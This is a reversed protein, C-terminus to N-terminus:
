AVRQVGHPVTRVVSAAVDTFQAAIAQAHAEGKCLGFLTPGSGSMAAGACGADLLRQKFVALHPFESFVPFEMANMLVDPLNGRSLTEMINQFTATIGGIREERSKKLMVHNYVRAASVEMPPHLLVLWTERLPALPQLVEGRGTASMTGGLLVFPVDSGIEAGIACLTTDELGLSWLTNLGHLVAAADASGGALGAAVPINKTLTIHVGRDPAFRDELIRAAKLALNDHTELEPNNCSLTLEGVRPTLLVTDSLDISQFITEIDHYGDPRRDIVALYLNVKAYARYQLASSAPPTENGSL